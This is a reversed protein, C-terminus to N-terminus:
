FTDDGIARHCEGLWDVDGSSYEVSVGERGNCKDVPHEPHVIKLVGANCNDHALTRGDMMDFNSYASSAASTSASAAVTVAGAALEMVSTAITIDCALLCLTM